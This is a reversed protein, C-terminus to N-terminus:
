EGEKGGGTEKVGFVNGYKWGKRTMIHVNVIGAKRPPPAGYFVQIETVPRGIPELSEKGTNLHKHETILRTPPLAPNWPGPDAVHRLLEREEPLEIDTLEPGLGYSVFYFIITNFFYLLGRVKGVHGKILPPLTYM